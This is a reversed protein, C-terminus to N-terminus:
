IKLDKSQNLTICLLITTGPRYIMLNQTGLEKRFIARFLGAIKGMLKFDCVSAYFVGIFPTLFGTLFGPGTTSAM